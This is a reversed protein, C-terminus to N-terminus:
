EEGGQNILWEAEGLDVEWTPLHGPSRSDGLLERTKVNAEDEDGAEIEVFWTAPADIRVKFTPM